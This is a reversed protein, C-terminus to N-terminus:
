NLSKLVVKIFDVFEPMKIIAIAMEIFDAPPLTEIDKVKLGSLLSMFKILPQQIDELKDLVLDCISTVVIIGAKTYDIDKLETKDKIIKQLEEVEDNTFCNAINKVGIGKLIKSVVFIDTAIPKRLTYEM